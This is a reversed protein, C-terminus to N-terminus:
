DILLPFSQEEGKRNFVTINYSGPSLLLMGKVGLNDLEIIDHPVADDSETTSMARILVPYSIAIESQDILVPRVGQYNVYWHPRDLFYQTRPHYVLLDFVDPEEWGTFAENDRVFVSADKVNIWHYLPVETRDNGESLIVQNITLPNIGTLTKLHYAMMDWTVSNKEELLHGFGCLIILKADPDSALISAINKAQEVERNEGFKEYAFISMNLKHADRILHAMHPERTYTGTHPANLPYGRTNVEVDCYERYEKPITECNALAELGLHTFGAEALSPLLTRLFFRHLPQHHAENFIVIRQDKALQLIHRDAAVAQHSAFQAMKEGSLDDFGWRSGNSKNFTQLAMKINGSYTFRWAARQANIIGSDLDALVDSSFHFQYDAPGQGALDDAFSLVLCCVLIYADIRVKSIFRKM